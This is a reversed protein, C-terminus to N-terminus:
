RLLNLLTTSLAGLLAGLAFGRAWIDIHKEFDEKKM